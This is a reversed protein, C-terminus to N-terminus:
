GAALPTAEESFCNLKATKEPGLLDARIAYMQAIKVALLGMSEIKKPDLKEVPGFIMRFLQIFRWSRMLVADGRITSSCTKAHFFYGTVAHTVALPSTALARPPSPLAQLDHTQLQKLQQRLIGSSQSTSILM